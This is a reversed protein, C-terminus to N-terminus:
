KQSVERALDIEALLRQATARLRQDATADGVEVRAKIADEEFKFIELRKQFLEVRIEQATELDLQASFLEERAALIQSFKVNGNKYLQEVQAVLQQLVEVRQKKLAVVKASESDNLQAQTLPSFVLGGVLFVACLVCLSRKITM